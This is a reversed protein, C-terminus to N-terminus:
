LTYIYLLLINYNKHNGQNLIIAYLKIIGNNIEKIKLVDGKTYSFSIINKHINKGHHRHLEEDNLSALVYGSKESGCNGFILDAKGSGNFITSVSGEELGIKYGYFTNGNYGDRNDCNKRHAPVVDNGNSHDINFMWGNEEMVSKSM